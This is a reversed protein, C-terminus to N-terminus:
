ALPNLLSHSQRCLLYNIAMALNYASAKAALRTLLGWYTRARPFKLRFIEQLTSFTTEIQQRHHNFWRRARAQDPGPLYDTKLLVTAGLHTRWHRRWADGRLGVDSLTPGAFPQGASWRGRMPGRPGLRRGHHHHSPGLVTELDEPRPLPASPFQRWTFPAEALWREETSAPGEIWGSVFGVNDVAAVVKIGYYAERDSGGFGFDAETGFCRHRQGRCRRMLPVGVGDIVEYVPAGALEHEVRQRIWEALQALVGYLHRVRRNFASQSVLRPFYGRWHNAAWAVFARESGNSQWQAVLALTLVESDSLRGPRGPLHARVPAVHAQYADDVLCYVTTLFTDVDTAV